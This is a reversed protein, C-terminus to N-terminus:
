ENISWYQGQEAADAIQAFTLKRHDNDMSIIAFTPIGLFKLGLKRVHRCQNIDVCVALEMNSGALEMALGAACVDKSDCSYWIGRTIQRDGNERLAQIWLRRNIEIQLEPSIELNKM